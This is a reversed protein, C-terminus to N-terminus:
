KEVVEQTRFKCLIKSVASQNINLTKTVDSQTRGSECLEGVWKRCKLSFYVHELM